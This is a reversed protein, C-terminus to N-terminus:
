DPSRTAGGSRLKRLLYREEIPIVEALFVSCSDLFLTSIEQHSNPESIEFESEDVFSGKAEWADLWKPRLVRIRNRVAFDFKPGNPAGAILHSAGRTLTAM